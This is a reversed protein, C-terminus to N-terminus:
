TTETDFCVENQKMLEKVLDKIAEDTDAVKYDHPCNHINKDVKVVAETIEEIVEETKEAAKDPKGNESSIINGFLDTQVAQAPAATAFLSFDEGLIRKGIAKFELETFVDKLM